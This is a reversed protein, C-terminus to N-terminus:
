ERQNKGVSYCGVKTPAADVTKLKYGLTNLPLGTFQINASTSFQQGQYRPNCLAVGLEAPLVAV